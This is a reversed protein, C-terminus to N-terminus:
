AHTSLTFVWLYLSSINSVLQKIYIYPTTHIFSKFDLRLLSGNLAVQHFILICSQQFKQSIIIFAISLAQVCCITLLSTVLIRYISKQYSTQLKKQFIKLFNVRIIEVILFRFTNSSSAVMCTVYESKNTNSSCNSPYENGELENVAIAQVHLFSFVHCLFLYVIILM